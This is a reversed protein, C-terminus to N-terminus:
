KKGEEKYALGEERMVKRENGKRRKRKVTYQEKQKIGESADEKREETRM